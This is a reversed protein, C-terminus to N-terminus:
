APKQPRLALWVTQSISRYLSRDLILIAATYSVVGISMVAVLPWHSLWAVLTTMVITALLAYALLRAISVTALRRAVYSYNIIFFLCTSASRAIASGVAGLNPTLLLNFTINSLTSIVLFISLRRQQDAVLMMRSNPENLFLFMLAFSLIQLPLGAPAFEAGFALRVLRPGLVLLGAAMPLALMGIYRVSQRYLEALKEHSLLAYRAMLPYVAFRYAQSLVLLSYAITTAGNYWGVQEESHFKSLVLTDTQAEFALLTSIMLFSLASRWHERIPQWGALETQRFGGVRVLAIAFLGAAGVWSGTLWISAVVALGQGSALAGAAGIVKVTSVAALVVAPAGFQRKGMLVSQAVFALGDPVVCLTFLVVPIATSEAYSFVLRVALAVVAFIVLSCALRVLAFNLLYRGGHEPERSVQRVVLEDLGRMCTTALLLFTNALAIVGASAPGAVRGVIVFLIVNAARPALYFVVSLLSDRALQVM